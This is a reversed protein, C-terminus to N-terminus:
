YECHMEEINIIDYLPIKKSDLLLEGSYESVEEIFGVSTIYAGGAKRKDKVFYTVAVNIKEERSLLECIKANIREIEYDDLEIKRETIRARELVASGYGTLASFPAFQAARESISMRARCESTHHPLNIIREYRENM